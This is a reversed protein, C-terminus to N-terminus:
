CVDYTSLPSTPTPLAELDHTPHAPLEAAYLYCSLRRAIEVQEFNDRVSSSSSSTIPYFITLLCLSRALGLKAKLQTPQVLM